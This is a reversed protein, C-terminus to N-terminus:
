IVYIPSSFIWGVKRGRFRRYVEVRHIGPEASTHRLQTGTLKLLRKGDRLLHIEGSAPLDIEINIAGLRRLEEGVTARAAGSRAVFRFGHTPYPLDYGVWTRGARLAEYILAKDRATEGSLPERTLIHTNICRFLYDYSLGAHGFIHWKESTGHANASGLASLREGRSLLEDWLRLTARQPGRIGLAPWRAYIAAVSRAWLLGKFESMYDWVELGTIGKVPWDVWPMARWDPNLPSSKDIPHALYCFGGRAEITRILTQTNGFTYPAMEQETGYVLLHNAPPNRYVSHAEEGVLLLTRGYYAELGEARINHDTVIVFNLGADEAAAAIEQHSAAGDSYVSHVHPNGLYERYSEM